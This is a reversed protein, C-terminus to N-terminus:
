SQQLSIKMDDWRGARLPDLSHLKDVLVGVEVDAPWEQCQGHYMMSLEALALYVWKCDEAGDLMEQVREFEQKMYRLGEEATLNPVISATEDKTEFNSM